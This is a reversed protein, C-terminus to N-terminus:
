TDDVSAIAMRGEFNALTSGLHAWVDSYAQGSGGGDYWVKIDVGGGTAPTAMALDDSEGDNDFDGVVFHDDSPNPDFTGDASYVTFDEASHSGVLRFVKMGTGDQRVMLIDDFFGDGDVSAIAM